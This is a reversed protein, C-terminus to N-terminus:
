HRLSVQATKPLFVLLLGVLHGAMIKSSSTTTNSSNTSVALGLLRQPSERKEVVEVM